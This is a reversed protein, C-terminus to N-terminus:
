GYVWNFALVAIWHQVMEPLMEQVILSAACVTSVFMPTSPLLVLKGIYRKPM